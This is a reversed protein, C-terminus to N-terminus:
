TPQLARAAEPGSVAQAVADPALERMMGTLARKPGVEVFRDCGLERLRRVCDAWRVTGSLQRELVEPIGVADRYPEATYNAVVPIGPERWDAADLAGRLSAGAPEMLPTHFAAAVNLPLVRRAGADRLRQGARELGAITGGVVTQSPTNYNAPWVDTEDVLATEVADPALGIVAAMSTTGPPAATAMARGREVVLRVADEPTLAGAVCLATYEGVSHGAAAAPRVGQDALLRALAVGVFLLAPQANTTLRLEDDDADTLLRRLDIAAADSCRDALAAIEPDELLEAGM